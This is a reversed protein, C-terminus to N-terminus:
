TAVPNPDVYLTEPSSGFNKAFHARCYAWGSFDPSITISLKQPNNGGTGWISVTDDTIAAPTGLLDMQTTFHAHQATGGNSVDMLELYADDDNYDGSGSNAIFVGIATISNTVWVAMWPGILSHYQDRTGDVSPTMAMSHGGAEGDDAGGTRVATTEETIDGAETIIDLNQISGSSKSTVNSCHHLEIRFRSRLTGTTFAMSSNLACNLLKLDLSGLEALDILAGTFTSLDSGILTVVGGYNSQDFLKTPQSTTILELGIFESHAHHKPVMKLGTGSAELGCNIVRSRVDRVNLTASLAFLTDTVILCEELVIGSDTFAAFELAGGTHVFKIGYMNFHHRFTSNGSSLTWTPVDSDKYARNAVTLAEGTRWGPILDSQVPPENTTASKCGLIIAPNREAGIPGAFSGATATEAGKVYCIDGAAVNTGDMATLLAQYANAWDTGDNNGTALSMDCYVDAMM